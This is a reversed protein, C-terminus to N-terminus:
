YISERYRLFTPCTKVILHRSRLMLVHRQLVLTVVKKLEMDKLVPYCM